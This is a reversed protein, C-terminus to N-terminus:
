IAIIEKLALIIEEETFNHNVKVAGIKELLTFNISSAKNNKKDHRMLHSLEPISQEELPLKPYLQVITTKIEEYEASSLINQKYSLFSEALMGWAICYGHPHPLRSLLYGEIAHGITHGFNLAKRINKELPDVSVIKQKIAVSHEIDQSTISEQTLNISKKWHEADAILGHKLMEAKGSLFEKKPLTSLFLPDCIVLEPFAFVGLQNKHAGLDIGTKGGVSADVMALLSTPINVFKLGRKFVSAIFGGMDTVVGGGLNIVLDNRNIQYETLAQWVQFCVEMVKNQEGSPLMIVEAESLEEFSTLVYELCHDHTNEDVIIIKKNDRYEHLLNIFASSSSTHGFFIAHNM